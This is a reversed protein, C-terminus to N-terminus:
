RGGGWPPFVLGKSMGGSDIKCWIKVIDIGKIKGEHELMSLLKTLDESSLEMRSKKLVKKLSQKKQDENGKMIAGLVSDLFEVDQVAKKIVNTLSSVYESSKGM